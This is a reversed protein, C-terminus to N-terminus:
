RQSHLSNIGDNFNVGLGSYASPGPKPYCCEVVIPPRRAAEWQRWPRRRESPAIPGPNTARTVQNTSWPEHVRALSDKETSLFTLTPTTSISCSATGVAM